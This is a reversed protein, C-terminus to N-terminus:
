EAHYSDTSLNDRNDEESDNISDAISSIVDSVSKLNGQKDRNCDVANLESPIVDSISKRVEQSKDRHNDAALLNEDLECANGSISQASWTTPDIVRKNISNNMINKKLDLTHDLYDLLSKSM